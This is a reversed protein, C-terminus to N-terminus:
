IKAYVSYWFIYAQEESKSQQDWTLNLTMANYKCVHSPSSSLTCVATFVIHANIAYFFFEEWSHFYM